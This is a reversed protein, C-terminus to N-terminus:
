NHRQCGVDRHDEDTPASGLPKEVCQEEGDRQLATPKGLRAPRGTRQPFEGAGEVDFRPCAGVESPGEGTAEHENQRVGEQGGVLGVEQQGFDAGSHGVHRLLYEEACEGLGDSMAPLSESRVPRLFIKTKMADITYPRAINATAIALLKLPNRTPMAMLPRPRPMYAATSRASTASTSGLLSLTALSRPTNLMAPAGGKEMAGAPAGAM